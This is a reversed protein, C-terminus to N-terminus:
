LAKGDFINPISSRYEGLADDADQKFCFEVLSRVEYRTAMGRKGMRARIAKRQEDTVEIRVLVVM